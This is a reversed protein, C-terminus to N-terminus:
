ARGQIAPAGLASTAEDWITREGGTGKSTYYRIRAM